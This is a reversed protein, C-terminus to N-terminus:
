RTVAASRIAAAATDVLDLWPPWVRVTQALAVDVHEADLGSLLQHGVSSYQALRLLFRQRQDMLLGEQVARVLGAYVWAPGHDGENAILVPRRLGTRHTRALGATVLRHAIRECMGNGLYELWQAATHRRGEATIQQIVDAGLLELQPAPTLAVVYGHSIGAAGAEILEGLMATAIMVGAARKSTRREGTFDHHTLWYADNALM